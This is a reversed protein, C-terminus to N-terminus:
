FISKTIINNNNNNYHNNNNNNNYTTTTTSPNQSSLDLFPVNTHVASFLLHCCISLPNHLCCLIPSPLLDLSPQTSLLSYSIAVSRSLTTHVASFLLHCCICLPNRFVNPHPELGALFLPFSSSSKVLKGDWVVLELHCTSLSAM